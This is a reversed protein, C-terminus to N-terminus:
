ARLVYYKIDTTVMFKVRQKLFMLVRIHLHIGVHIHIDM